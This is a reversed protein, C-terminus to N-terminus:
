AMLVVVLPNNLSWAILKHVVGAELNSIRFGFRFGFDSAIGCNWVRLEILDKESFRVSSECSNTLKEFSRTENQDSSLNRKSCSCDRGTVPNKPRRGVFRSTCFFIRTEWPNM